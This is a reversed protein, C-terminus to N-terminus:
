RISSLFYYPNVAGGGGPHLEFHIHAVGGRANGTDGITGIQQGASVRGSATISQMHMYWYVNGDDGHLIIWLGSSSGNSSSVNGGIVAYAPTGMPAMIDNGQHTHGRRPAGWDNSFSYPSGAPFAYNGNLAAPPATPASIQRRIPEPLPKPKALEAIEKELGKLLKKAKLMKNNIYSKKQSLRIVVKKQSSRDAVLRRQTQIVQKKLKQVKNIVASDNKSIRTIFDLNVLMENFTKASFVIDFVNVQGNRYMNNVRKGLTKQAKKLKNSTEILKATNNNVNKELKNMKEQARNYDELADHLDSSMSAIQKKASKAKEMPSLAQAPTILILFLIVPLIIASYVSKKRLFVM